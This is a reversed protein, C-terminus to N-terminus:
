RAVARVSFFIVLFVLSVGVVVARGPELTWPLAYGFLGTAMWTCIGIPVVIAAFARGGDGAEASQLGPLIRRAWLGFSSKGSEVVRWGGTSGFGLWQLVIALLLITIALVLPQGCEVWDIEARREKALSKRIEPIREFGGFLSVTALGQGEWEEVSAASSERAVRLYRQSNGFELLQDYLRSLNYGATAASVDLDAASQLFEIAAVREKRRAHFVGLNNLAAGNLPEADVVQRYYPRAIDDQGFREHADAILHIVAPDDARERELASLREVLRGDFRGLELGDLLRGEASLAVPLSGALLNFGTPVAGLLVICVALVWRESQSVYSWLLVAWVLGLWLWGSPLLVPLCLLAIVAGGGLFPHVPLRQRLDKLLLAGKTAFQLAIFVGASILLTLMLWIVGNRVALRRLGPDVFALRYGRALHGMASFYQGDGWDARGRGFHVASGNEDLPVALGFALEAGGDDGQRAAEVGRAALALSLEPASDFGMNNFNGILDDVASKALSADGQLLASNLLLWRDQLQAFAEQVDRSLKFSQVRPAAGAVSDGANSDVEAQPGVTQATLPLAPLGLLVCAVFPALSWLPLARARGTHGPITKM